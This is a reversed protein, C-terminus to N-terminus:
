RHAQPLAERAGLLPPLSLGRRSHCLSPSTKTVLGIAGARNPSGERITTATRESGLYGIAQHVARCCPLDGIGEVIAPLFVRLLKAVQPDLSVHGSRQLSGSDGELFMAYRMGDLAIHTRESIPQVMCDRIGAAISIPIETVLSFFPCSGVAQKELWMQSTFARVDIRAVPAGESVVSVSLEPDFSPLLLIRAAWGAHPPEPALTKFGMGRLINLPSYDEFKM